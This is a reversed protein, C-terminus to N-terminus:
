TKNTDPAHVIRYYKMHIYVDIEDDDELTSRRMNNNDCLTGALSRALTAARRMM